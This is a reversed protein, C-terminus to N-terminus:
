KETLTQWKKELNGQIMIRGCMCWVYSPNWVHAWHEPEKKLLFKLLNKAWSIEFQSGGVRGEKQLSLYHKVILICWLNNIRKYTIFVKIIHIKAIKFHFAISFNTSKNSYDYEAYKKLCHCSEYIITTGDYSITYWITASKRQPNIRYHHYVSSM